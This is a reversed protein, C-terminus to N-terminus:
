SRSKIDNIDVMLRDVYNDITNSNLYNDFLLRNLANDSTLALALTNALANVDSPPCLYIGPITDIGDTCRTSVVVSNCAMQQLIVNPFGEIISSVVCAEANKFYTYVNDVWGYLHVKDRLRLIEVLGLLESELHGKGLIILHLKPYSVTLQKFSRILIDFGKVPFLSGAAVIYQFEPLVIEANMKILAEKLNIPNSIVVVETRNSIWPVNSVFDTKMAETQCVLLDIYKYGYKYFPMLRRLEKDNYRRFVQTSERGIHKKACILRWNRFIGVLGNMHVHSTMLLDFKKGKFHFFFYFPALLFGYRESKVPCIIFKVNSSPFDAQFLKVDKNTLFFFTIDFNRLYCEMAVQLLLQEAGGKTGHPLFFAVKMNLGIESDCEREEKVM